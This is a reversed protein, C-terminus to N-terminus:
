QSAPPALIAAIIRRLDNIGGLENAVYRAAAAQRIATEAENIAPPLGELWQRLQRASAAEVMERSPYEPRTLM